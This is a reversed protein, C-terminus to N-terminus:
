PKSSAQSAAAREERWRVQDNMRRRDTSGVRKQCCRPVVLVKKGAYDAPDVAFPMHKNAYEGGDDEIEIINLQLTEPWPDDAPVLYDFTIGYYDINQYPREHLLWGLYEDRIVLQDAPSSSFSSSSSGPPAAAPEGRQGYLIHYALKALTPGAPQPFVPEDYDYEGQRLVQASTGPILRQIAVIPGEINIRLPKDPPPHHSPHPPNLICAPLYLPLAM